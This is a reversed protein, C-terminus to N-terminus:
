EMRLSVSKKRQLTFYHNSASSVSCLWKVIQSAFYLTPECLYDLSKVTTWVSDVSRNKTNQHHNAGNYSSASLRFRLIWFAFSRRAVSTTVRTIAVNTAQQIGNKVMRGSCAIQPFTDHGIWGLTKAVTKQSPYKLEARFGTIQVMKLRSKRRAKM